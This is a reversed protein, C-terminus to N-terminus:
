RKECVRLRASRSRPNKQLEQQTPSLGKKYILTAKPTNGCVCVPFDSPCTCGTCWSQMRQKVMRDELSHFTIVALRGGSKLLDFAVDLGRSLQDLEGNVAIRLAQFTKRAPHGQERRVAAPVSAKVIEALQQTTVIASEERARVIGKAISKAHKDEGYRSIIEALQQWSLANVLEQASTGTQSMRMDLPADHHYSFGREPTDLQHSSVGIDLLVGNVASFGCEEALQAMQSFTGQRVIARSDGRFKDSVVAVADPDRDIALLIGTTLREVIAASHGGGGATGDIYIGTPNIKLAAISEEFLVSRHVFAM